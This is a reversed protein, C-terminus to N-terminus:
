DDKDNPKKPSPSPAAPGKSVTIKVTSNPEVVTGAYPSQEMVVGAAIVPSNAETISLTLGNASAEALAEDKTKGVFVPVQTTSAKSVYITVKSGVELETGAAPDTKIVNGKTVESSETQLVVAEFGLEKLHNIADAESVNALDPVKAAQKGNGVILKVTDGRSADAGAAPDMGIVIGEEGFTYSTEAKLGAKALAKIADDKKEGTVGPVKIVEKGRSVNVIVTKGNPVYSGAPPDTSIVYGPDVNEDYVDKVKYQLKLEDLIKLAQDKPRGSLERMKVEDTGAIVVHIVKNDEEKWKSDAAPTQTRIKNKDEEPAEKDYGDVVIKFGSKTALQEAEELQMGVLDPVKGVGSGGSFGLKVILFILLFAIIIGGIITLVNMIRRIKPNVVEGGSRGNDYFEREDEPYMSTDEPYYGDDEPYYAPTNAAPDNYYKGTSTPLAENEHQFVFTLDEIMEGINQYRAATKKQTARLIIDELGPAIDPVIVSPPVMPRKMHLIAVAVNNDSDFPLEGTIMEYMTIGLSYIDSKEDSYGSRAQEPAIYHVSGVATTSITNGDAARAIGFDAVKVMGDNSIVINQPKIDRHIINNNHAAELGQAIQMAIKITEMNTLRGKSDIYSKLTIGEILEMVIYHLDDQEGEDYVNVINPHAISAAARAEGIFKKVFGADASYEENLIKVAVLRNLRMDNAKYVKAMGGRGILEIIEYRGAVVYGPKLM